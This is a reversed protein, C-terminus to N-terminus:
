GIEELLYQHLTMSGSSSTQTFFLDVPQAATSDFGPGAAPATSVPLMFVANSGVSPPQSGLGAESTWRGQGIVTAAAGTGITRCTLLVDLWWGVNTKPGAPNLTVAGGDFVVVNGFRIDYRASGPASNVCSIRGTATIRLQKGPYFFNNPLTCKASSPLCSAANGNVLSPGDSTAVILPNIWLQQGV